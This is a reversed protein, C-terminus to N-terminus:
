PRRARRLLYIDMIWGKRARAEGRLRLIDNKVADLPGSVLIEDPTGLYAGWFIEIGAGDLRSFAQEGDLWVVAGAEHGPFDQPLRRGTTLLIPEGIANLPIGHRAALVQMASVGPSVELDFAVGDARLRHLIRLTSDYFAPDGWILIAGCGGEPLERAFSSAYLDGIRAHWDAVVGHYDMPERDRAPVDIEMVRHPQTAHRSLIETRLAKLDSKEAGKDPVFFVDARGIAKVAQLTLHDPDGVGMGIVLIKRM